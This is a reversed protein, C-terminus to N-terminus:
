HEIPQLTDQSVLSVKGTLQSYEAAVPDDCQTKISCAIPIVGALAGELPNWIGAIAM